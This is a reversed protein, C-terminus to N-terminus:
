ANQKKRKAIVLGGLGLALLLGFSATTSAEPVAAFTFQTSLGAPQVTGTAASTSNDVFNLATSPDGGGDIFIKSTPTAFNRIDLLLNGQMPDYLFPTTLTVVTDFPGAAGGGPTGASTLTLAGSYVVQDNGGVNTAFTSSLSSVAENTTSLDFQINSDMYTFAGQQVSPRFAIQTILEPGSLASFQSAAYIQQYRSINNFPATNAQGGGNATAFTNPAVIVQAQAPVLALISLGLVIMETLHRHNFM